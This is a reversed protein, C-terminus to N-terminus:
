RSDVATNMRDFKLCYVGNYSVQITNFDIKQRVSIKELCQSYWYSVYNNTSEFSFQVSITLHSRNLYNPAPVRLAFNEIARKRFQWRLISACHLRVFYFQLVANSNLLTSLLIKTSPELRRM